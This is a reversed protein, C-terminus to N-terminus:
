EWRVAAWNSRREEDLTLIQYHEFRLQSSSLAPETPSESISQENGLAGQLACVPCSESDDPVLTGCVQCARKSKTSM